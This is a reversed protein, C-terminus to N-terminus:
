RKCYFLKGEEPLSKTIFHGEYGKYACLNKLEINQRYFYTM